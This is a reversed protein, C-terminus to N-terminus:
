KMNDRDGREEKPRSESRAVVQVPHRARVPLLDPHDPVPPHDHPIARDQARHRPNIEVPDPVNRRVGQAPAAAAPKAARVLDRHPDAEVSPLDTERSRRITMRPLRRRQCLPDRDLHHMPRARNRKQRRTVKRQKHLLLLLLLNMASITKKQKQKTRWRSRRRLNWRPRRRSERHRDRVDRTPNAGQFPTPLAAELAPGAEPAQHPVRNTTGSTTRPRMRRRVIRVLIRAVELHTHDRPTRRIPDRRVQIAALIM